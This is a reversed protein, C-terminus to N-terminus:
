ADEGEPSELYFEVISRSVESAAVQYAGSELLLRLQELRLPHTGSFLVAQSLRSLSISDAHSELAPRDDEASKETQSSTGASRVASPYLEDIRM